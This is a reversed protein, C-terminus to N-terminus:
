KAELPPVVPSVPVLGSTSGFSPLSDANGSALYWRCGNGKSPRAPEPRCWRCWHIVLRMEDASYNAFSYKWNNVAGREIRQADIVQNGPVMLESNAATVVGTANGSNLNFRLVLRQALVIKRTGSNLLQAVEREDGTQGRRKAAVHDVFRPKIEALAARSEGRLITFGNSEVDGAGREDTAFQKRRHNARFRTVLPGVVQADDGAVVGKLKAAIESENANRRCDKLQVKGSKEVETFEDARVSAGM